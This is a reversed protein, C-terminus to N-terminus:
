ARGAATTRYLLGDGGVNWGNQQDPRSLGRMRSPMHQGLKARKWPAEGPQHRMVEDAAGVAWGSGDPLELVRFLPDVLPYEVEIQDFAWRQGGDTTRAIRGEIGSALGRRADTM